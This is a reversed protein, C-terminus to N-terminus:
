IHILSLLEPAWISKANAGTAPPRWVTVERADALHALDRTARIALRDGHTGMYYFVDGDRTIWPDPGSDLLPNDVAPTAASANTSVQLLAALAMSLTGNM